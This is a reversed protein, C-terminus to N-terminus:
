SLIRNDLLAVERLSVIVFISAAFIEGGVDASRSGASARPRL